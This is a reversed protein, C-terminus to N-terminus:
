VVKSFPSKSSLSRTFSRVLSGGGAAKEVDRERIKGALARIRGVFKEEGVEAMVARLKIEENPDYCHADGLKFHAMNDLISERTVGDAEIPVLEIRSVANEEDAFAFMMFLELLCWLRQFYTKGCVVLLKNCATVNICLVKLGDAINEQDICVKDLWFTPERKHKAVFQKKVTDIVDYKASPDDHWSHSLFYDIKTEKQNLPRVAALAAQTADGDKNNSPNPAPPRPSLLRHTLSSSIFFSSPLIISHVYASVLCHWQRRPRHTGDVVERERKLVCKALLGRTLNQGDLTRLNDHAKLLLGGADQKADESRTVWELAAPAPAVKYSISSRRRGGKFFSGGGGGGVFSGGGGGRATAGGRAFGAGLPRQVVNSNVSFRLTKNKRAMFGGGRGTLTDDVTEIEVIVARVWNRRHDFPDPYEGALNKGHHTWWDAGCRLAPDNMLEAIVASDLGRRKDEFKRAMVKFLKQRGYLLAIIYPAASSCGGVCMAIGLRIDGLVAILIYGQYMFNVGLSIFYIYLVNIQMLTPNWGGRGKHFRWRQTIYLSFVAMAYTFNCAGLIYLHPVVRPDAEFTTSRNRILRFSYCTYSYLRMVIYRDVGRICMGVCAARRGWGMGGCVDMHLSVFVYGFRCM